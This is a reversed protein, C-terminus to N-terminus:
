IRWTVLRYGSGGKARAMQDAPTLRGAARNEARRSVSATGTITSNQAERSNPSLPQPPLTLLVTRGPRIAHAM